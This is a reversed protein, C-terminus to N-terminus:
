LWISEDEVRDVLHLSQAGLDVGTGTINVTQHGGEIQGAKRGVDSYCYGMKALHSLARMGDTHGSDALTGGLPLSDGDFSM